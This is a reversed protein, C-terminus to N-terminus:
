VSSAPAILFPPEALCFHVWLANASEAELCKDVDLTVVYRINSIGPDAARVRPVDAVPFWLPADLVSYRTGYQERDRPSYGLLAVHKLLGPPDSVALLMSDVLEALSIGGIPEPAVWISLLYAAHSGVPLDVQRQSVHHVHARRSVKVELGVGGLFFDVAEREPGRWGAVMADPQASKSVLWLEGWLGLQQEVSLGSRRSLLTQWEEVWSLVRSWTTDDSPELRRVLDQVLVLFTEILAADTCELTAAPQEWRRAGYSLSLRAVPRLSFGGGSRGVSAIPTTVLPVLFTPAGSRARALYGVGLSAAITYDESDGASPPRTAALADKLTSGHLPTDM